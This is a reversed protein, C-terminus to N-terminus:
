VHILLIFLSLVVIAALMSVIFSTPSQRASPGAINPIKAPSLLANMVFEMFTLRLIM